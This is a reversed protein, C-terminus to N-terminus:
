QQRVVLSYFAPVAAGGAGSPTFSIVDDENAFTLAAPTASNLQGAASGPQVVDITAFASGGNVACAVSADATTIAGGIISTVKMIQCRFPARIYAAIPSAGVSPSYATLDITKITHNGPLTM